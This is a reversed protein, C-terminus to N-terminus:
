LSIEPVLVLAEKGQSVVEDIAKLYIETKGSGTVGHLLFAKFGGERLAPELVSWVREQDENLTVPGSPALTDETSDSFRDIRRVARRALGKQVLAEVPGPGCRALRTLQRVEVPQGLKRLQELVEKQKSTLPPPDPADKEPVAEVFATKRTGARD